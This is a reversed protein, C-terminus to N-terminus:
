SVLVYCSSNWLRSLYCAHLWDIGLIVDFDVMDLEVLDVMTSKHNVFITCDPYVREALISDGVPTSVSFSELLKEPLVDFNMAVYPNVFSLSAGLDLLDFFVFNFVKIMGTVVDPSDVQELISTIAYLRNAGRGVRSTAGGSAARQTPGVVSLVHMLGM